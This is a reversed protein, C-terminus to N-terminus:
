GLQRRNTSVALKSYIDPLPRVALFLRALPFAIRPDAM